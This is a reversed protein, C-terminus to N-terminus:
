YRIQRHRNWPIVLPPLDRLHRFEKPRTVAETPPLQVVCFMRLFIASLIWDIVVVALALPPLWSHTCLSDLAKVQSVLVLVYVSYAAIFAFGLFFLKEMCCLLSDIDDSKRLCNILCFIGSPLMWLVGNTVLCIPLLWSGSCKDVNVAGTFVFLVRRTM